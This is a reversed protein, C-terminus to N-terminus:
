ETSRYKPNTGKRKEKGSLYEMITLTKSSVRFGQFGAGEEGKKGEKMKEFFEGGKM